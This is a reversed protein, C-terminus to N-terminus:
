RPETGLWAIAEARSRFVHMTQGHGEAFTAFMRAIGFPLNDPAVIARKV